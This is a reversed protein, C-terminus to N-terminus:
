RQCLLSELATRLAEIDTGRWAIFGDPRVLVAGHEGIGLKDTWEPSDDLALVRVPLTNWPEATGALVACEEGIRDLPSGDTTVFNPLRTGPQGDPEAIRTRWDSERPAEPIIATSEYRYYGGHLGTIDRLVAMAEADRRSEFFAHMNQISLEVTQEAVPRREREYTELLAEGARGSHVAALKWCLNHADQIGTNGGSGAWPGMVHAADGALFVRGERYREAILATNDWPAM